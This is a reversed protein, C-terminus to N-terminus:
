CEPSALAALLKRAADTIKSLDGERCDFYNRYKMYTPLGATYLYIPFIIDEDTERSRIWAINYEEKCMKSSLYDPSLLAVMKRCKDLNEFIAPQWAAGVNIEKRDVFIRINPRCKRLAFELADTEAANARSYSIFVDYGNDDEPIKRQEPIRASTVQGAKTSFNHLYERLQKFEDESYNRLHNKKQASRSFLLVPSFSSEYQDKKNSFVESANLSQARSKVVIKIQELPLGRKLWHFAADLLPTLIEAISYNQGGAAVLPLAVTKIDPKEAIIPILARFIDGVVEPPSGRSLPEFCLIRKFKLGSNQSTFEKSLWCSFSDRLDVDKDEALARVSLGKRDLVGILSGPTPTYDDPFASVILLDFGQHVGLTTLDGQYLEIRREDSIEISDLFKM